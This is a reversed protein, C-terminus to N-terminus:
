RAVARAAALIEDDSPFKVLDEPRDRAEVQAWRVTGSADILFHGTLQTWHAAIIQRDAETPEFGDRKNLAENAELINLPEPLEGGADFRPALLQAMTSRRPWQLEDPSTDDPLLEIAPLGFACHSRADPDAALLVRTPRYQFYQRAREPPTTVIALTEVGERALKDRTIGLQV